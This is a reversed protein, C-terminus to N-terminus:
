PGQTQEPVQAPVLAKVQPRLHDPIQSLMDSRAAPGALRLAEAFALAALTDNRHKIGSGHLQGLKFWGDVAFRPWRATRKKLAELAMDEDNILTSMRIAANLLDLDYTGDRMSKRVLAAAEPMRNARTLLIVELSIVSPAQPQLSKARALFEQAAAAHGVQSYGRAINTLIALVYPRSAIVSEWVWVANRWDGWRALEDAVMPTIKRYHPNIAIGADLDTLMQQKVQSWRPHDPQGSASITLAMKVAGVILRECRAAQWTIYSALVLGVLCTAAGWLSIPRTLMQPVLRPGGLWRQVWSAPQTTATQLGALLGLCLAFMAGTTALRWPFGAASVLLLAGLSLLLAARWVRVASADASMAVADQGADAAPRWLLQLQRLFFASLGLLFAWGLVGFEGVLQLYENHAYYDTELQTGADQFLPVDVEWAGAGVGVWPRAKIMAWTARWMTLRVSFSNQTYEEQKLVSGSRQYARDFASFRGESVQNESLIKPNGSPMLGLNILSTVLIIASLWRVRRPWATLPLQHWFRWVIWPLLCLLVALALLASRTGTMCLFVTNLALSFAMLIIAVTNKLHIFAWVSLPFAVVVWEAAFNRNVFTSAPNPGQPFWSLDFWFQLAGWSAAIFAGAHVLLAFTQMRRVTVVNLAVWTLLAFLGWRVVEVGALYTHAWAMSLLSGATLSLPLWVVGHWRFPAAQTVGRARMVFLSLGLGLAMFAVVASKLTDQLMAEHPVGVAPVLAMMSGLGYFIWAPAVSAHGAAALAQEAMAKNSRRQLKDPRM